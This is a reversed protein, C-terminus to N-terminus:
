LIELTTIIKGITSIGATGNAWYSFYSSQTTDITDVSQTVSSSVVNGSADIGRSSQETIMSGTPGIATVLMKVEQEFRVATSAFNAVSGPIQVANLRIEIETGGSSSVQGCAIKYRFASGVSLTNAALPNVHGWGNGLYGGSYVDGTIDTAPGTSLAISTTIATKQVTKQFYGAQVNIHMVKGNTGDSTLNIAIGSGQVIKVGLFGPIADASDHLVMHDSTPATIGLVNGAGDVTLMQGAIIGSLQLAQILAQSFTAQGPVRLTAGVGSALVTNGASSLKGTTSVDGTFAAGTLLAFPLVLQHTGNVAFPDGSGDVLKAILYGAVDGTLGDGLVKHDSSAGVTYGQQTLWTSLWSQSVAGQVEHVGGPSVLTWAISGDTALKGILYDPATDGTDTAVKHDSAGGGSGSAATINLETCVVRSDSTFAKYDLAQGDNVFYQPCQGAGNFTLPNAQPISLAADAWINALTSSGQAFIKLYGNAAPLANAPDFFVQNYFPSTAM